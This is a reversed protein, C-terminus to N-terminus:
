LVVLAVFARMGWMRWGRRASPITVRERPLFRKVLRAPLLARLVADDLLPICLAITLLNFFNYNGTFGILVMLFATAGAAVFRLRRPAFFFFPVVIEIFYMLACSFKQFWLPLQHAHWGIWTPLPQTEYHLTLASLNLWSPDDYLLKTVGSQFMLRFLLWRLLWASARSPPSERSLGPLWQPPAYFIAFFGAELLLTDWQFSLFTQGVVSLSLYLLWLLALALRPAIGVILLLALASGSVCLFNLFGDSANIWCLTPLMLFREIGVGNLTAQEGVAAMFQQAPLIGNGGILGALQSWLSLFAILYVVGLSRLFVWRALIEPPRAVHEGYFLRTLSSFFSRHGAVCRYAAESVAAFVALRTYCRLPWQKAPNHSRARLSAEAGGYVRGDPEILQVATEFQSRSIEPFRRPVSEDQFPVYDVADGTTQRWREIWLACFHCDGDYVVLPRSPPTAVRSTRNVRWSQDRIDRVDLGRANGEFDLNGKVAIPTSHAGLAILKLVPRPVFTTVIACLRHFQM